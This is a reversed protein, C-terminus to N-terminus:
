GASGLWDDVEAARAQEGLERYTTLAQEALSTAEPGALEDGALARALRFRVRALHRVLDGHAEYASLAPELLERAEDYRGLVLLPEATRSRCELTDPHEPGLTAEFASLARRYQTVAEAHRGCVFHVEALVELARAVEPHAEGLAQLLLDLADRGLVVASDQRGLGSEVLSSYSMALATAPHEPGLSDSFIQRARTTSLLAEDFRGLRCLVIGQNLHMSGVSPHAVGLVAEALTLAENREALAMDYEELASHLNALNNLNFAVSFHHAGLLRRNLTLAQQLSREADRYHGRQRQNTGLSGLTTAVAVLEPARSDSAVVSEVTAFGLRKLTLEVVQRALGEAERLRGMQSLTTHLGDLYAIARHDEEGVEAVTVAWAERNMAEAQELQNRALYVRALLGLSQAYELPAAQRRPRRLELSQEHATAAEELRGLNHYVQGIADLLTAKVEPQEDLGAQIRELGRDLVERATPERGEVTSPGAASFVEILLSKVTEARDREYRTRALQRVLGITFGGAVLVLALTAAVAWRHRRIFKGTRYSLTAPRALIPLGALHRRLDAALEAATTYRNHPEKRLAKLVIHDVDGVLSGRLTPPEDEPPEGPLEKEEERLAQSPRRAEHECVAEIWDHIASSQPRYPLCGTLLEYLLIGLAYVDTAATIAGGTLQEPSAYRPTLPQHGFRTEAVTWDALQPDLIKAVGFDLLKPTGDSTVLVNSPKIDRHVVLSQHAAQVAECVVMFLELRAAVSLAQAQAYDCISEGEVYEMVLFPSGDTLTGGDLLRAINPHDMTALIQRESRFRSVLESEAGAQQMVVKIAVHRHFAGDAREAQYVVGMGGRGIESLVRYTGTGEVLGKLDAVGTPPAESGTTPGDAALLEEIERILERDGECAQELYRAREDIALDVAALFLEQIRQHRARSM